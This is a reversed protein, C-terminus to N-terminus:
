RPPEPDNPRPTLPCRWDNSVIRGSYQRAESGEGFRQLMPNASGALRIDREVIATRLGEYRGDERLREFQAHMNFVLAPADFRRAPRSAAPHLGVVFFAEGAFSLSFHPNSPDASVRDDWGHGIAADRDSISQIRQWLCREFGVEDLTQPAEFLVAFSQFSAPQRKASSVFALLASHLRQDGLSSAIDPLVITAMRGRSLAAKAGVCPFEAESIWDRFRAALPHFEADSPPVAM